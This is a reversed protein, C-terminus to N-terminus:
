SKKILIQNNYLYMAIAGLGFAFFYRVFNFSLHGRGKLLFNLFAIKTDNFPPYRSEGLKEGIYGMDKYLCSKKHTFTDFTYKGHYNGMGSNGVGGFPLTDVTLHMITDNVAIGGCSTNQILLNIDKKRRSFVYMALPKDRKNIFNIADYLNNINVIPLVPGFIEDLMVLDSPNVDILITPSIYRESSITKGGIAVTGNSLFKTIRQFHADTIIRGFDPSKSPDDGYWQKLVKDSVEVFKREVEKSCLIYDPAVCTQGANTFKGWLIRKVAIELDVSNDIYVPSKGGLELTVPTLNEAAAKHIIKGVSPSGTFFIYDFKEKLLLTTEKPGGTYIQYCDPDLYKPILEAILKSCAVALESPKLIVCNGAAIAGAVPSLLLQFPYNWAGIVLVVGYPDNYISLKDLLNVITKQPTEPKVWEIINALINDLDYMNFQLEMVISEQRSKHLDSALAQIMKEQNEVYLRRLNKIQQIRYEVPKTKGSDFSNRLLSIIEKPHKTESM